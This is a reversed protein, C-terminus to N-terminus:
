SQKQQQQIFDGLLNFDDTRASGQRWALGIERYSSDELKQTTVQTKNLLSSGLAMGPLYTIGLDENVMQILTFLSSASFQSIKQQNGLSCASIAHDRLCHGDELLLVSEEPLTDLDYHKPTLLQSNNRYALYFPDAYLVRTEVSRLPYPLALLIIRWVCGTPLQTM